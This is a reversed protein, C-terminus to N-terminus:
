LLEFEFCLVFKYVKIVEEFNKNVCYLLGYVYWCIYLKMDVILVEKGM